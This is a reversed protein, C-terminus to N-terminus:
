KFLKEYIDKKEGDNIVYPSNAYNGAGKVNEVYLAIEEDTLKVNVASWKVINAAMVEPMIRELASDPPELELGTLHEPEIWLGLYPPV